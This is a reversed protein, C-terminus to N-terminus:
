PSGEGEKDAGALPREGWGGSERRAEREDILLSVRRFLRRLIVYLTIAAFIAAFLSGGVGGVVRIFLFFISLYLIWIVVLEVTMKLAHQKYLDETM